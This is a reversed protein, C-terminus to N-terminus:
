KKIFFFLEWWSRVSVRSTSNSSSSSGDGSKEESEEVENGGGGSIVADIELFAKLDQNCHHKTFDTVRDLSIVQLMMFFPSFRFLRWRGNVWLFGCVHLSFFLVLAFIPRAGKALIWRAGKKKSGFFGTGAQQFCIHAKPSIIYKWDAMGVGETFGQVM